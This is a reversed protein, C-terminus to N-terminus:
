LRQDLTKLSSAHHFEPLVKQIESVLEETRVPQDPAGIMEEIRALLGTLVKPRAPVHPVAVLHKLGIDVSQEGEGVFEEFSKEGSTDLPTLLLPYPQDEKRAAAARRAELENEFIEPAYGHHQLVREALDSLLILDRGADLRPVLLQRDSPLFAALLCIQGAEALSVFYRRTDRPAALPQGKALRMLWGQLLSGDSFAVNAFRASTVKVQEHRAVTEGSFIAHEMLRKTAGMVNVPNAAKDTSVCFYRRLGGRAALWQLLQLPKIVNTDLMQLISQVNKESRVHKLAAFNLVYDYPEEERVYREMIPSGFNLPITRLDPLESAEFSSRLDRVLEVLTNENHDVVHLARPSFPLLARVTAAGISGAGGIVLIRRGEIETKLTARHQEIDETFLARPRGTALASLEPWRAHGREVPSTTSDKKMSSVAPTPSLRNQFEM